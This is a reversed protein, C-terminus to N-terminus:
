EERDGEPGGQFSDVMAEAYDLAEMTEAAAALEAERESMYHELQTRIELLDRIREEKMRIFKDFDKYNDEATTTLELIRRKLNELM